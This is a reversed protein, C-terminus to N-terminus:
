QDKAPRRGFDPSATDQGAAIIGRRIERARTFLSHLAEGDGWRI